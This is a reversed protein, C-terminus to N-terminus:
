RKRKGEMKEQCMCMSTTTVGFGIVLFVLTWADINWFAWVGLDRLLLLIGLVLVLLGWWKKGCNWCMNDGRLAQLLEM